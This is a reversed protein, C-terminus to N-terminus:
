RGDKEFDGVDKEILIVSGKSNICYLRNSRSIRVDYNPGDYSSFFDYKEPPITLIAENVLDAFDNNNIYKVVCMRGAVWGAGRIECPYSVIPGDWSNQYGPPGGVMYSASIFVLTDLSKNNEESDVNIWIDIITPAGYPNTIDGIQSIYLELSDELANNYFLVSKTENCNCSIFVLSIILLPLKVQRM